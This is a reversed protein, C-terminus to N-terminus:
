KSGCGDKRAPHSGCVREAMAEPLCALTSLALHVDKEWFIAARGLYACALRGNIGCESVICAHKTRRVTLQTHFM